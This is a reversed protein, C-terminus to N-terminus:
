TRRLMIVIGVMRSPVGENVGKGASECTELM